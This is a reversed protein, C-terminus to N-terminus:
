PFSPSHLNPSIPLTLMLAETVIETASVPDLPGDFRATM